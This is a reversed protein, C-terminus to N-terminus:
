PIEALVRDRAVEVRGAVRREGAGAAVLDLAEPDMEELPDFPLVRRDQSQGQEREQKRMNPNKPENM